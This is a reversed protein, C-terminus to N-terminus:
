LKRMWHRLASRIVSDNQQNIENEVELRRQALELDKQLRKQQEFKQGIRFAKLFSIFFAAIAAGITIIYTKINMRM